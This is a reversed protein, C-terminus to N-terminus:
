MIVDKIKYVAQEISLTRSSALSTAALSLIEANGTTSSTKRRPLTVLIFSTLERATSVIFRRIIM